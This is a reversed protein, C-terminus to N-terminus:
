KIYWSSNFKIKESSPFFEKGDSVLILDAKKVLPEIQKKPFKNRLLVVVFCGPQIVKILSASEIVVPNKPPLIKILEYFATKLDSDVALILYSKFAGNQLYLSSDKQISKNTEEFLIWNEGNKIEILGSTTKHLHPTVKVAIPKKLKENALIQCAFTTKGVNQGSGAILLIHEFKEM